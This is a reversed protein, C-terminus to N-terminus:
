ITDNHRLFEEAVHLLLSDNSNEGYSRVARATEVDVIASAIIFRLRSVLKKAKWKVAVRIGEILLTLPLKELEENRCDSLHLARLLEPIPAGQPADLRLTDRNATDRMVTTVGALQERLGPANCAVAYRSVPIKKEEWLVISDYFDEILNLAVTTNSNNEDKSRIRAVTVNVVLSADFAFEETPILFDARQLYLEDSGSLRIYRDCFSSRHNELRPIIEFAVRIDLDHQKQKVFSKNLALLATTLNSASAFSITVYQLDGSLNFRVVRRKTLTERLTTFPIVAAAWSTTIEAFRHTHMALVDDIYSRDLTQPISSRQSMLLLDRPSEGTPTIVKKSLNLQPVIPPLTSNNNSDECCIMISDEQCWNTLNVEKTKIPTSYHNNTPPTAATTTGAGTTGHNVATGEKRHSTRSSAARYTATPAQRGLKSIAPSLDPLFLSTVYRTGPPSLSRTRTMM